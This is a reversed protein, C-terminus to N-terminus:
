ELIEKIEEWFCVLSTMMMFSIQSIKRNQSPNSLTKRELARLNSFEMRSPFPLVKRFKQICLCFHLLYLRLPLQDKKLIKAFYDKYCNNSGFQCIRM